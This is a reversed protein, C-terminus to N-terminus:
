PQKTWVSNRGVPATTTYTGPTGNTSNGAYFKARLDGMFSNSFGNSPITGEFTVSTLNTCGGFAAVGINAVSDPIIVNTLGTCFSFAYNGISTVSDPITVSTLDRCESFAFDGIITVSSPITVIKLGICYFFASDGISTVGNPIIFSSAVKRPPYTHLITKNKNYLVGDQSSYALNAADVNIATLSTCGSFARDGINIVSNPITVTKLSSFRDLYWMNPEIIINKAAGPLKLSVIYEQGNKQLFELDFVDGTMPSLDLSVYKKASNIEALVEAMKARTFEGSVTMLVPDDKTGTGAPTDAPLSSCGTLTFALVMLATLLKNNKIM